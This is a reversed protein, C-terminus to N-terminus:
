TGFRGRFLTLDLVGRPKGSEDRPHIRDLLSAEGGFLEADSVEGHFIVEVDRAGQAFRISQPGDDHANCGATVAAFAFLLAPLVRRVAREQIACAATPFRIM